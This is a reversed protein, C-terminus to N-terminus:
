FIPNINVDFETSVANDNNCEIQYFHLACVIEIVDVNEESKSVFSTDYTFIIIHNDNEVRDLFCKYIQEIIAYDTAPIYLRFVHLIKTGSVKKDFDTIGDIDWDSSSNIGTFQDFEIMGDQWNIYVQEIDFACNKKYRSLRRATLALLRENLIKEAILNYSQM